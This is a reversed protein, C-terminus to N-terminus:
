HQWFYSYKKKNWHKLYFLFILIGIQTSELSQLQASSRLQHSGPDQSFRLCLISKGFWSPIFAFNQGVLLCRRLCCLVHTIFSGWCWHFATDTINGLDSARTNKFVSVPHLFLNKTVRQYIFIHCTKDYIIRNYCKFFSAQRVIYKYLYPNQKATDYAKSLDNICRVKSVDVKKKCVLIIITLM